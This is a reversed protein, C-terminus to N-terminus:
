EDDDELIPADISRIITTTKRVNSFEDLFQYHLEFSQKVPDYFSGGLDTVSAIGWPSISVTNDKAITLVMFNVLAEKEDDPLNHIPLRVSNISLAKLKRQVGILSTSSTQSSGNYEGSYINKMELQYVISNLNENVEYDADNSVITMPLAYPIMPDLATFDFAINLIGYQKGAKITVYQEGEIEYHTYPLMVRSIYDPDALLHLANLSDLAHRNLKLRVRLDKKIPQTSACYVSISISDKITEFSHEGVYLLDNSNVIYVTKKYQEGFDVDNSCSILIFTLFGTLAARLATINISKIKM